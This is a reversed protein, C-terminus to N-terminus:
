LTVNCWSKFGPSNAKKIAVPCCNFPVSLLLPVPPAAIPRIKSKLKGSHNFVPVFQCWLQCWIGADLLTQYENGDSDTYKSQGLIEERSYRNVTNSGDDSTAAGTGQGRVSKSASM